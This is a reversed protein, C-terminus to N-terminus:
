RAGRLRWLFFPVGLLATVAGLPLEAPARVTRAAVDAAVVLIAGCLASAILVPRARAGVLSRALHPVMLGVFGVLGAVAVTAAALISALLFFFRGAGETDIGLSEASDDGLALVDLWRARHLLAAGVLLCMTSLLAADRWTAAAVSGMMWWLANRTVDPAATAMVVMITANAFAGMVVGSMLLVRTDSRAGAAQAIALVGTVAALAGAFAALAILSPAGVGSAVALVAGVAAGGSVGLLYPEALANRLTGQLVTGSMGLAGGVLLALVVRPLRVARVITAETSNGPGGLLAAIVDGPAIRAAGAMLAALAALALVVALLPIWARRM